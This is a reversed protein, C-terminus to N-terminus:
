YPRRIITLFTIPILAADTNLKQNEQVKIICSLNLCLMGTRFSRCIDYDGIVNIEVIIETKLTKEKFLKSTEIITHELYKASSEDYQPRRCTYKHLEIKQFFVRGGFM